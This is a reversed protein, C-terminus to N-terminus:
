MLKYNMDRCGLAAVISCDVLTSDSYEISYRYRTSSYEFIVVASRVNVFIHLLHIFDVRYLECAPQCAAQTAVAQLDAVQWALVVLFSDM